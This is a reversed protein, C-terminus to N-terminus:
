NTTDIILQPGDAGAERSSYRTATHSTSTLALSYTGEGTILATVDVYTWTDSPFPGSSDLIEGLPPANSFTTDLEAWDNDAVLRLDYGVSSRTNAYIRLTVRTITGTLGTVEFRLYSNIEPSGDTRLATSRGYNRQVKSAVVYTDAV